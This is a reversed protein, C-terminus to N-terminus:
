PMRMLRADLSEVYSRAIRDNDAAVRMRAQDRGAMAGFIVAVALAGAVMAPHGRAFATWSAPRAAALRAWVGTRFDPQRAPIVRWHSLVRSLSEHPDPSSM